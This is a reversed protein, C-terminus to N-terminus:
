APNTWFARLKQRLFFQKDFGDADVEFLGLLMEFTHRSLRRQRMALSGRRVISLPLCRQSLKHLHSVLLDMGLEVNDLLILTRTNSNVESITLNVSRNNLDSCARHYTTVLSGLTEIPGNM